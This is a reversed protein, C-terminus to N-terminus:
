KEVKRKRDLFRRVIKKVAKRFKEDEPLHKFEEEMDEYGEPLEVRLHIRPRGIAEEIRRKEEEYRESIRKMRKERAKRAWEFIGM